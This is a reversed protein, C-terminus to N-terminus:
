IALFIGISTFLATLRRRVAERSTLAKKIPFLHSHLMEM